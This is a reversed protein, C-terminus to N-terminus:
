KAKHIAIDGAGTALDLAGGSGDGIQGSPGFGFDNGIAGASTAATVALNSGASITVDILGAASHLSNAGQLRGGVKITGGTTQAIIAGDVTSATIDGGGSALQLDGSVGKIAIPGGGTTVAAGQELGSVSVPGAKTNVQLKEGKPMTLNLEVARNAPTQGAYHYSVTVQAGTAAVNVQMDRADAKGPARKKWAATVSGDAGATVTVPGADSEVVVLPAGTVKVTQSKEEQVPMAGATNAAGCAATVVLLLVIAIARPLRQM